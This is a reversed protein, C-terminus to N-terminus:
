TATAAVASKKRTKTGPKSKAHENRSKKMWADMKDGSDLVGKLSVINYRKLMEHTTHGSIKM